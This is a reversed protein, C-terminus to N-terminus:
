KQWDANDDVLVGKMRKDIIQKHYKANRKDKTKIRVKANANITGDIDNVLVENVHEKYWYVSDQNKWRKRFPEWYQPQIFAELLYDRYEKWDKFNTPLEKIRVEKGFHAFTNTGAVRDLFRNYTQPEVEQLREISHWSTEHILASVRMDKGRIGYRYFSDYIKNYRWKNKAIATWIDSDQFDYIPYFCRTNKIMKKCWTIGKFNANKYGIALRRVVSESIRMGTLLAVHKKDEVDCFSPLIDMLDHFRNKDTPNVKISIDSQPRIWIDKKEPDWVRLFNDEFSLSNTFYFPIQWWYPKVDKRHMIYSMYDDTAKWEAEQDLWFVKLPLRKREKAIIMALNFVVTSDKGGSMCVIVDDCNDYIFRIRNLAEDFVTVPLYNITSM